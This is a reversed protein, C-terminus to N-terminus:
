FCGCRDYSRERKQERVRRAEEAARLDRAKKEAAEARQAEIAALAGDISPPADVKRKLPKASREPEKKKSKMLQM